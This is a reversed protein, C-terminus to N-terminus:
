IEANTPNTCGVCPMGVAINATVPKGASSKPDVGDIAVAVVRDVQSSLMTYSAAAGDLSVTLRSGLESPDVEYNFVHTARLMPRGSGAVTETWFLDLRDARLRPTHFEIVRSRNLPKGSPAGRVIADNLTASYDTGPVFGTVPSFVLE